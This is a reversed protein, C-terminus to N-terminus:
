FAHATQHVHHGRAPDIKRGHDRMAEREVPDLLGAFQKGMLAVAYELHGDRDPLFIRRLDEAL